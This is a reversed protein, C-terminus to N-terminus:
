RIYDLIRDVTKKKSVTIENTGNDNKAIIM